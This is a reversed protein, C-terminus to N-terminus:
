TRKVSFNDGSVNSGYKKIRRVYYTCRYKACEEFTIVHDNESIIAPADESVRVPQDFVESMIDAADKSLM